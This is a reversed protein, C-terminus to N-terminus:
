INEIQATAPMLSRKNPHTNPLFFPKVSTAYTYIKCYTDTKLHKWRSSILLIVATLIMKAISYNIYYNSM